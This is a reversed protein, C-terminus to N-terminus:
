ALVHLHRTSSIRSNLPRFATSYLPVTCIHKVPTPTPTLMQSDRISNTVMVRHSSNRSKQKSQAAFTVILRVSSTFFVGIGGRRSAFRYVGGLALLETEMRDYM